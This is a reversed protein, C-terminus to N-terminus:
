AGELRIHSILAGAGKLSLTEFAWKTALGITDPCAQWWLVM